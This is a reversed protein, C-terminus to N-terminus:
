RLLAFIITGIAMAMAFPMTGVATFPAGNCGDEVCVCVMELHFDTEYKYCPKRNIKDEEWGCSRHIRVVKVEDLITQTTKRCFPQKGKYDGDCERLFEMSANNNKIGINDCRTDNVSTCQYCKIAYAQFPFYLVLLLASLLFIRIQRHNM